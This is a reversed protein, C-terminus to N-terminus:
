SCSWVFRNPVHLGVTGQATAPGDLTCWCNGDQVIRADVQVQVGAEANLEAVVGFVADHAIEVPM